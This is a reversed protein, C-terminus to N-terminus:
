PRFELTWQSRWAPRPARRSGLQQQTREGLGPCAGHRALAPGYRRCHVAPRQRSPRKMSPSDWLGPRQRTAPILAAAGAADRNFPGRLLPSCVASVCGRPDVAAPGLRRRGVDFPSCPVPAPPASCPEVDPLQARPNVALGHNPLLPTPVAQPRPKFPEFVTDFRWRSAATRSWISRAGGSAAGMLFCNRWGEAVACPRCAAAGTADNTNVPAAALQNPGQQWRPWPM